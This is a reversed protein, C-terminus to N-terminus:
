TRCVWGGTGISRFLRMTSGREGGGWNFSPSSLDSSPFTEISFNAGAARDGTGKGGGEGPRSGTKGSFAREGAAYRGGM